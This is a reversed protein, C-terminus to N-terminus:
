FVLRLAITEWAEIFREIDSDKTASGLSIRLASAADEESVGMAQLVHSPQVTGSACASGSSVAIGDLDLAMILSEAHAGPLSFMSTNVVRPVNQSHIIISENTKRLAVELSNRLEELRESKQPLKVNKSALQAAVGFGAIGAINETGARANKEQGGGHILSPTDGCTGLVLAGVGQPGGIKHASLTLFDAGLETMDIKIRGAAQVGDCHVLAGYRKALASIEAVPQIAGTENNVLMACVLAAPEKKLLEKLAEVDVIGDTTVPIHEINEAAQLVSNHEIGPALIRKGAFHRLVTNNGETAGSNFIVQAAAAGTLAAVERRADEVIGRAERGYSHVSSANLPQELIRLVVERVESLLPATANYDMYIHKTM